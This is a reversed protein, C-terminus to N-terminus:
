FIWLELLELVHEHLSDYAFTVRGSAQIGSTTASPRVKTLFLYAYYCSPPTTIASSKESQCYIPAWHQSFVIFTLQKLPGHKTRFSLRISVNLAVLHCLEYNKLIQNLNFSFIKTYYYSDFGHGFPKRFVRVLVSMVVSETCDLNWM